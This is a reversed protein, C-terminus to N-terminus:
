LKNKRQNQTGPRGAFRRDCTKESIVSGFNPSNKHLRREVGKPTNRGHGIRPLFPSREHGGPIAARVGAAFFRIRVRGIRGPLIWQRRAFEFDETPNGVPFAVRLDGRNQSAAHAFGSVTAQFPPCTGVFPPGDKAVPSLKAAAPYPKALFSSGEAAISYLKAGFSSPNARFSSANAEFHSADGEFSSPKTGFSSPKAPFHYLDAGFRSAASDFRSPNARFRSATAVPLLWDNGAM